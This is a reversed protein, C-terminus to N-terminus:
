NRVRSIQDTTIFIIYDRDSQRPKSVLILSIYNHQFAFIACRLASNLSWLNTNRAEVSQSNFRTIIREQTVVSM